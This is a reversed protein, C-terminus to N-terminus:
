YIMRCRMENQTFYVLYMIISDCKVKYNASTQNMKVRYTELTSILIKLIKIRM